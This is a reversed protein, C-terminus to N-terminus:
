SVAGVLSTTFNISVGKFSNAFSDEVSFRFIVDFYVFNGDYASREKAISYLSRSHQSFLNIEGSLHHTIIDSTSYRSYTLSDSEICYAPNKKYECRFTEPPEIGTTKEFLKLNSNTTSYTLGFFVPVSEQTQYRNFIITPFTKITM